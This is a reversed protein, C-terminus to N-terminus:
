AGQFCLEKQFSLFKQLLVHAIKNKEEKKRKWAPLKQEGKEIRPCKDM